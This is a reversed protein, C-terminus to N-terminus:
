KHLTDKNLKLEDTRAPLRTRQKKLEIKSLKSDTEVGGKATVKAGGRTIVTKTDSWIRNKDVDYSFQEATITANETLSKIIAHGDISVLKHPYDFTGTDGTVQVSDQGNEKLLLVPNKLTASKLDSFDVADARLVWQKQSDKSEFISVQTALQMGADETPSFTDSGGCAALLPLLGFLLYKRM